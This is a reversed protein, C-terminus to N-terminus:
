PKGIRLHVLDSVQTWAWGFLSLVVLGLAGAGWKLRQSERQLAEMRINNIENKLDKVDKELDKIQTELLEIESPM